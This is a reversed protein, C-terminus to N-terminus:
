KYGLLIFHTIIVVLFCIFGVILTKNYSLPFRIKELLKKADNPGAIQEYVGFIIFFLTLISFIVNTIILFVKM